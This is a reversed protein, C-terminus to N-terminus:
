DAAACSGDRRQDAIATIQSGEAMIASLLGFYDDCGPKVTVETGSSKLEDLLAHDPRWEVFFTQKYDLFYRPMSILKTFNQPQRLFRATALATNFIIRDSGAGGIALIPQNNKTVLIPSKASVPGATLPYDDPYGSVTGTYNRLGNNYFFGAPSYEGTGFHSGLTLTMTVVMGNKDWVCLHTTFGDERPADSNKVNSSNAFEIFLEPIILCHSLYSYKTDIIRRGLAATALIDSAKQEYLSINSDLLDEVLKITAISCSPPPTGYMSYDHWDRRVPKVAQSRFLAMDTQDYESGLQRMSAVLGQAIQGRYFSRGEDAAIQSLTEALTPQKLVQGARLPYGYPALFKIAAPDSLKLLDKEIIKELYASLKFGQQATQIAPQMLAALPRSGYIRRLRLLLDPMTPLGIHNTIKLNQCSRPRKVSADWAHVRGDPLRILAFGDGGIGSNSFDVVGLMFGACIAADVANGGNQLIQLAAAAALPNGCSVAGSKGNAIFCREDDVTQNDSAQRAFAQNGVLVLLLLIFAYIKRQM